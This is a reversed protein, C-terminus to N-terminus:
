IYTKTRIHLSRSLRRSPSPISASIPSVIHPIPFLVRVANLKLKCNRIIKKLLTIIVQPMPKFDANLPLLQPDHRALNKLYDFLDYKYSIKIKLRRAQVQGKLFLCNLFSSSIFCLLYLMIIRRDITMIWILTKCAYDLGTIYRPIREPM